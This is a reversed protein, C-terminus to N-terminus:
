KKWSDNVSISKNVEYRADQLFMNVRSALDRDLVQKMFSSDFFVRFKDGEKRIVMYYFPETCRMEVEFSRGDDLEFVVPDYLRCQVRIEQINSRNIHDKVTFSLKETFGYDEYKEAFLINFSVNEELFVRPFNTKIERHYVIGGMLCGYLTALVTLLITARVKKHRFFPKLWSFKAMFLQGTMRLVQTDM